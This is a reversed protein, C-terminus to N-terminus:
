GIQPTDQFSKQYVFRLFVFPGDKEGEMRTDHLFEDFCSGIRETTIRARKEQLGSSM